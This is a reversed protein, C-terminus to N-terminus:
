TTSWPPVVPAHDIAPLEFRHPFWNRPRGAAAGQEPTPLKWLTPRWVLRRRAVAEPPPPTSPPAARAQDYTLGRRDLWAILGDAGGIEAADLLDTTADNAVLWGWSEATLAIVDDGALEAAAAQEDTLEKGLGALRRLDMSKLSWTLQRRRFSAAEWDRWLDGDDALHHTGIDALIAFPPRGKRTTKTAQSTVERALKVFYDALNNNKLSAMRVDLGGGDLWSELGLDALKSTWRAHMSEGVLRATEESIRDDWCVLVHIHPHWGNRGHTVEVAKVWGLMGGTAQDKAWAGGSTVSGWAESIADWLEPLRHGTHHRLTFTMLSASGGTDLVHRMVTALDGARHAAVKAACSPCCWVSGCTAIGAYGASTGSVRVVPAGTGTVTTRGCKALRPLDTFQQALGRLAARRRRRAQYALLEDLVAAADATPVVGAVAALRAEVAEQPTLKLRYRVRPPAAQM